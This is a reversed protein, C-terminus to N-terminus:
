RFECVLQFIEGGNMMLVPTSDFVLIIRHQWYCTCCNINFAAVGPLSTAWTFGWLFGLHMPFKETWRFRFRFPLRVSARSTYPNLTNYQWLTTIFDNDNYNILICFLNYKVIIILMYMCMIYFKIYEYKNSWLNYKWIAVQFDDILITKVYTFKKRKREIYINKENM